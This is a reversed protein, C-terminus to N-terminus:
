AEMDQGAPLWYDPVTLGRLGDYLTDDLINATQCVDTPAMCLVINSVEGCIVDPRKEVDLTFSYRTHGPGVIDAKPRQAFRVTHPQVIGSSKLPMSFWQSGQALVDREFAEFWAAQFENLVLSCTAQAEDTDYEVRVISGVEMETKLRRDKLELGYGSMQPLPMWDPWQLLSAM